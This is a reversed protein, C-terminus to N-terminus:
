APARPGDLPRVPWAARRATDGGVQEARAGDDGSRGTVLPAILPGLQKFVQAPLASTFRFEAAQPGSVMATVVGFYRDEIHFVFTATRSVVRSEARSGGRAFTYSRNDGTGTKGGILLPHGDPSLISGRARRGTGNEVVDQLAALTVRAVEAPLVRVGEDDRRATEVEFPTGAAFRLGEIRRLPRRVGDDLLIGVLEALAEPRDGSSGIATALSPVLHEFPYGLDRWGRGIELFAEVELMVRIREDQAARRGTGMLWRYVAIREAASAEILESLPAGPHEHLYRVVWLELPHVGALYGLDPLDLGAPDARGFWSEVLATSPPPEGDLSGLLEALEAASGSPRVTRYAWAARQPSARRGSFFTPLLDEPSVNRYRRHFREVFVAGEREAFRQLYEARRPDAPDQLVRASSGPVRLTHYRVVDQMMRIFVLNVSSRFATTVTPRAHDLTNDFNSFTHRGGGTFFAQAPSASYRRDMAASLVEELDAEPRSALFAATWLTLPDDYQTLLSDRAQDDAEALTAYASAVCALYSILTRLKATSGLEVKSGSNIDFPGHFNDTQVRVLNGSPTQEVLLVAYVVGGPDSGELLRPGTLGIERVYSPDRLRALEAAVARQTPADITSRVTLDLRDLRYLGDVGLLGLLESRVADVAKDRGATVPPSPPAHTRLDLRDEARLAADRLRPSIIGDRALLRLHADVLPGLETRGKAHTLYYSPRRQAVFLGLVARLTLAREDLLEPDLPDEEGVLARTADQVTMGYWAWLGTGLGNVEGYGAIAALPVSNVYDTVIRRRADQTHPGSVYARASASAIQRLKEPPGTTIGGPSHRLKELQTALTSGGAVTPDGPRMPRLAYGAVAGSLRRWEIAPNTTPSVPALLDRNEIWLLVDRVLPPIEDFSDLQMGPYRARYLPEGGRDTLELGAATKEQYIPFLGWRVMRRMRDSPVARSRVAFDAGDLRERFVPIETYGLRINYPGAPATLGPDRDAADVPVVVWASSATLRSLVTSQLWSTRMEVWLLTSLAAVGLFAIMLARVRAAYDALLASITYSDLAGPLQFSEDGLDAM